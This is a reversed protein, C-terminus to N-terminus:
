PEQSPLYVRRHGGGCCDSLSSNDAFCDFLIISQSVIYPPDFILGATNNSVNIQHTVSDAWSSTTTTNTESTTTTTTDTSSTTTTTETENAAALEAGIELAEALFAAFSNSSGDPGPNVAFVMGHGCHSAATNADQQCHIWIPNM